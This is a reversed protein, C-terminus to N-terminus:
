LGPRRLPSSVPRMRGDPTVLWANVYIPLPYVEKGAKADENIYRSIWWASFSEDADTGLVEQRTGPRKHMARVLSDPVQGDLLKNSESSFDRVANLAGAENQEQIM